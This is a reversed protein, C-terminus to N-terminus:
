LHTGFVAIKGDKDPLQSETVTHSVSLNFTGVMKISHAPILACGGVEVKEGGKWGAM